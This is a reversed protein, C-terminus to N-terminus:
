FISRKQHHQLHIHLYDFPPMARLLSANNKQIKAQNMSCFLKNSPSAQLFVQSSFVIQNNGEPLDYNAHTLSDVPKLSLTDAKKNKNVM